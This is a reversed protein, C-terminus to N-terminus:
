GVVFAASVAIVNFAAYDLFILRILVSFLVVCGRASRVTLVILLM